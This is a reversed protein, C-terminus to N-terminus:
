VGSSPWCDVRGNRKLLYQTMAAILREGLRQQALQLAEDYRNFKGDSNELMGRVSYSASTELLECMYAYGFGVGMKEAFELRKDEPIGHKDCLDCFERHSQKGYFVDQKEPPIFDAMM